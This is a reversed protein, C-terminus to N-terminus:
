EQALKYLEKAADIAKQSSETSSISALEEIIEQKSLEKVKTNSENTKYIYYHNDACAAVPALHTIALTQTDKSIQKMKKGMSLAVKGSVGTDIEDFVVLISNSLRTFITKLALMLRSIEGGSAVNKLPKLDEGKNLSIYFEVDDIGNANLEVENINVKFIINNLMLEECQMVIEKELTLASEKRQTDIKKALLLAINKQKNLAALKENLVSDKDEFFALKNKLEDKLVILGNIDTNHKRKLKSYTFLREEIYEINIDEDTILSLKNKFKEIEDNLSYYLNKINERVNMIEEDDINIEKILSNLRDKISNDDEYLNIVNALLNIYKESDKYLKEKSILDNEEDINLKADELEKFDFRYYEIEKENYTNNLLDNYENLLGNYKNFEIKYENVLKINHAYKDLLSLHNKKNLLYQSDRQSHIDIYENFLNNLFNLTVNCENIRISNKNDSSITRRIILEDDYDIDVEDLLPKMYEEIDFVGEIIAKNQGTRIISSDAKGQNLLSLAGVIISKGAGTEGTFVNFGKNFDINLEDIIAYNKITLNKLM